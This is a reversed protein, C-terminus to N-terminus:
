QGGSRSLFNETDYELSGIPRAAQKLARPVVAEIERCQGKVLFLTKRPMRVLLYRGESALQERLGAREGVRVTLFHDVAQELHDALRSVRAVALLEVLFEARFAVDVATFARVDSRLQGTHRDMWLLFQEDVDEVGVPADLPVVPLVGDDGALSLYERTQQGGLIAVSELDVVRLAGFM